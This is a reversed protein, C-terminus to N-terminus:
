FPLPFPFNKYSESEKYNIENYGFTLESKISNFSRQFYYYVLKRNGTFELIKDVTSWVFTEPGRTWVRTFQEKPQFRINKNIPTSFQPSITGETSETIKFECTYYDNNRITMIFSKTQECKIAAFYEALKTAQLKLYSTAEQNDFDSYSTNNGIAKTFLQKLRDEEKMIYVDEPKYFKFYSM